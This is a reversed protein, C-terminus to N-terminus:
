DRSTHTVSSLTQDVSDRDLPGQATSHRSAQGGFELPSGTGRSGYERVTQTHNCHRCGGPVAVTADNKLDSLLAALWTKRNACELADFVDVNISHLQTTCNVSCKFDLVHVLANGALTVHAIDEAVDPTLWCPCNMPLRKEYLVSLPSIGSACRLAQGILGGLHARNERMLVCIDRALREAKTRKDFLRSRDEAEHWKIQHLDVQEELQVLCKDNVELVELM